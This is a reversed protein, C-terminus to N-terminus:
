LLKTESLHESESNQNRSKPATELYNPLMRNRTALTTTFGRHYTVTRGLLYNPHSLNMRPAVSSTGHIPLLNHLVSAWVSADAEFAAADGVLMRDMLGPRTGDAM